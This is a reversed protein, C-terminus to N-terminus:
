PILNNIIEAAKNYWRPKDQQLPKTYLNVYDPYDFRISKMYEMIANQSKNNGKLKEFGIGEYFGAATKEGVLFIDTFDKKEAKATEEILSKAIGMHRYKSDVAIDAIYLVSNKMKPIEDFGHSIMGGCLKGQQNKVALITVHGNDYEILTKIEDVFNRKFKMFAEAFNPNQFRLWAPDNTDKKFNRCFMNILNEIFGESQLEEKAPEYIRILEGAKTKVIYPKIPNCRSTFQLQSYNNKGIEM